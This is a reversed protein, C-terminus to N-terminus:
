DAGPMRSGGGRGGLSRRLRAARSGPPQARRRAAQIGHVDARFPNSCAVLRENPRELHSIEALNVEDLVNPQIALNNVPAELEGVPLSTVWGMDSRARLSNVRAPRIM